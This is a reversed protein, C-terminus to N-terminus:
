AVGCLRLGLPQAARRALVRERWYCCGSLVHVEVHRCLSGQGLLLFPSVAELGEEGRHACAGTLRVARPGAAHVAGQYAVRQGLLVEHEYADYQM